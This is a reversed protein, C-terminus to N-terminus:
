GARGNAPMRGEPARVKRVARRADHGAATRGRRALSCQLMHACWECVEEIRMCRRCTETILTRGWRAHALFSPLGISIASRYSAHPQAHRGEGMRERLRPPSASPAACALPLPAARRRESGPVEGARDVGTARPRLYPRASPDHRGRPHFYPHTLPRGHCSLALIPPGPPRSPRAARGYNRGRPLIWGCKCGRTMRPVWVQARTAPPPHPGGVTASERCFGGVSAGEHLAFRVANQCSPVLVCAGM